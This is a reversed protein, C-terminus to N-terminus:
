QMYLLWEQVNNNNLNHNHNARALGIGQLILHPKALPNHNQWNISTLQKTSGLSTGSGM